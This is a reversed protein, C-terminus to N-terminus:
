IPQPGGAQAGLAMKEAPSVSGKALAQGGDGFTVGGEQQTSQQFLMGAYGAQTRLAAADTNWRLCLHGESFM